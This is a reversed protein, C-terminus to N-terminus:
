RRLQKPQGRDTLLKSMQARAVGFLTITRYKIKRHLEFGQRFTIDYVNAYIFIIDYFFYHGYDNVFEQNQRRAHEHCNHPVLLSAHYNEDHSEM